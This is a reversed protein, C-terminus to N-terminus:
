EKNSNLMQITSKDLRSDLTNDIKVNIADATGVNQFRVTYYLYDDSDFSSHLIEPGHSELIDNPDYSGIVIEKITSINNNSNVDTGNYTAENTIMTGLEIMPAKMHIKVKEEQNPALNNFNLVFGTSTESYSNGFNVETLGFFELLSYYKFEVQGSQINSSLNKVVLENRYQFGPRLESTSILYVAIDSCSDQVNLELPVIDFCNSGNQPNARAYVIQPNSINDYSNKDLPNLSNIADNYTM